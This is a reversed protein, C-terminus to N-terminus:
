FMKTEIYEFAVRSCSRNPSHSFEKRSLQVTLNKCVTLHVERPHTSIPSIRLLSPTTEHIGSSPNNSICMIRQPCFQTTRMFSDWGRRITNSCTSSVKWIDTLNIVNLYTHNVPNDRDTLDSQKISQFYLFRASELTLSIVRDILAKDHM